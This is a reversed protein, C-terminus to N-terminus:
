NLEYKSYLKYGWNGAMYVTYRKEAIGYKYREADKFCKYILSPTKTHHGTGIVHYWERELNDAFRGVDDVFFTREHAGNVNFQRVLARM